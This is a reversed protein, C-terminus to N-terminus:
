DTSEVHFGGVIDLITSYKENRNDRSLEKTCTGKVDADTYQLSKMGELLLYAENHHKNKHRIREDEYCSV